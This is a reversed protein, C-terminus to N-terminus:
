QGNLIGIISKAIQQQDAGDSDNNSLLVICYNKEIARLLLSNYGPIGGVHYVVKGLDPVQKIFWGYGYETTSSFMLENYKNSLLKKTYLSRDFKYLDAATAYVSGAGKFVALNIHPVEVMGSDSKVYGKAANRIVKGVAVAGSQQMACKDMINKKLCAAYSMATIKEVIHALIIYTSNAYKFTSAPLTDTTLKNLHDIFWGDTMERVSVKSPDVFDPIGSTHSLLQHITVKRIAENKLGPFFDILTNNLRLKGAEVLQMILLSTFPKTLSAIYFVTNPTNPKNAAYDAKGFGHQYLIHDKEAVLVSGTFQSAAYLRRILSDIKATKNQAFLNLFPLLTVTAVIIAKKKLTM